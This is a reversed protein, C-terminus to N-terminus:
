SLFIILSLCGMFKTAEGSCELYLRTMARMRLTELSFCISSQEIGSRTLFKESCLKLLLLTLCSTIGQVYTPLDKNTQNRNRLDITFNCYAMLSVVYRKTDGVSNEYMLLKEHCLQCSPGKTM